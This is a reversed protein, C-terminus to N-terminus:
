DLHLVGIPLLHFLFLAHKTGGFARPISYPQLRYSANCLFITAIIIKSIISSHKPSRHHQPSFLPLDGRKSYSLFFSFNKFFRQCCLFGTTNYVLLRSVAFFFLLFCCFIPTYSLQSGSVITYWCGVYFQILFVWRM